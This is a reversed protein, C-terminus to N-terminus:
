KSDSHMHFNPEVDENKVSSTDSDSMHMSKPVPSPLQLRSAEDTESGSSDSKFRSSLRASTTPSTFYPLPNQSVPDLQEPSPTLSTSPEPEFVLEDLKVPTANLDKITGSDSTSLLDNHLYSHDMSAYQRLTQEQEMDNSAHRSSPLSHEQSYNITVPNLPGASLPTSNQLSQTTSSRTSLTM